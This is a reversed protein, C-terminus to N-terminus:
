GLINHAKYNGFVKLHPCSVELEELTKKVDPHDLNGEIDVFYSYEWPTDRTPRSILKLMNIGNKAFTGLTHYLAGPKHVTTFYMSIKDSDMDWSMKKSLIIFKTINNFFNNIDSKIIKLGYLSAAYESGISGSNIDQMEKILQASVATNTTPISQFGNERIFKSCQDIAQQHSYVTKISELTAGPIGMLNHKVEICREGVISCSSSVLLDFVEYIGGTTSNEFPVIGFDVNGDEVEKFVESFFEKNEFEIDSGFYEHMAQYSYSGPVGQYAIKLKNNM